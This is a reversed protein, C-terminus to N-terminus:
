RSLLIKESLTGGEPLTIRIFYLGPSFVSLSLEENLSGQALYEDQYVLRGSADLLQVTIQGYLNDLKIFIKEQAPNPYISFSYASRLDEIAANQDGINLDDLYFHNGGGSTFEFRFRVNTASAYSNPIKVSYEKWQSANPVFNGSTNPATASSSSAAAIGPPLLNWTTGCNTSVYIKLFDTNDDAKKAFAYKFKLYPNSTQSLDYSPSILNYKSFKIANGNRVFVCRTGSVSAATTEKWGNTEDDNITFWSGGNIPSNEFDDYYNPASQNATAPFVAIFKQKTRSNQGASNTTVLTVDYIGANPITVQPNAGTATLSNSGSTLTYTWSTPTGRWSFDQLTITGGECITRPQAMFDSVPVCITDAYGDNTGTALLNSATSLSSRQATNSNAANTMRTVQGNTFMIPCSAYDMINQVNDLSSCTNQSTNCSQNAVGITNPTDSVNDDENCNSAVGPTNSNGWTHRLNFFHGMEHSLTRRAFTTGYSTGGTGFQTNVLIIGDYQPAWQATSPNYTYGGAGNELGKVVWVNIYKNRPWAQAVDKAAEGADQTLPYFWRTIGNTCNGNPDKRALRFEWNANGIINKFASVVVSTDANQKQFDENLIKVANHVQENPIFDSSSYTHMIHFVIPFIKVARDGQYEVEANEELARIEDVLEPHAELFKDIMEQTACPRMVPEDSAQAWLNGFHSWLVLSIKAILFSLKKM